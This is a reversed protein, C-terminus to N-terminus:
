DTSSDERGREADTPLDYYAAIDFPPVEDAYRLRAM